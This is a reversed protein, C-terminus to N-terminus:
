SKLYVQLATDIAVKVLVYSGVIKAIDKVAQIEEPAFRPKSSCEDQEPTNVMKVQLAKNKFM